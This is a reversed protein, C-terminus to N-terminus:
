INRTLERTAEAVKQLALKNSIIADPRNECMYENFKELVERENTAECTFISDRIWVGEDNVVEYSVIYRKREIVNSIIVKLCVELYFTM